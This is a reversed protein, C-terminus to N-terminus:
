RRQYEDHRRVSAGPQPDDSPRTVLTNTANAYSKDKRIGNNRVRGTARYAGYVAAKAMVDVGTWSNPGAAGVSRTAAQEEMVNRVGDRPRLLTGRRQPDNPTCLIHGHDPVCCTEFGLNISHIFGRGVHPSASLCDIVPQFLHCSADNPTM